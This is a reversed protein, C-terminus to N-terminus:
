RRYIGDQRRRPMGSGSSESKLNGPITGPPYLLASSFVIRRDGQGQFIIRVSTCGARRAATRNASAQTM